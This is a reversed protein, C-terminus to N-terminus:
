QRSGGPSVQWHEGDAKKAGSRNARRERAHQRAEDAPRPIPPPASNAVAIDPGATIRRRVWSGRVLSRLLAAGPQTRPRSLGEPPGQSLQGDPSGQRRATPPAKRMGAQTERRAAGIGRGARDQERDPASDAQRGRGPAAATPRKPSSQAFAWAVSWSLLGVGPGDVVELPRRGLQHPDHIRNAVGRARIGTRRREALSPCATSRVGSPGPRDASLASGSLCLGARFAPPAAFHVDM